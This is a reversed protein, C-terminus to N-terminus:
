GHVVVRSFASSLADGTKERWKARAADVVAKAAENWNPRLDYIM